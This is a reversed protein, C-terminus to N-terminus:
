SGNRWLESTEAGDAARLALIAANAAVAVAIAVVLLSLDVASLGSAGRFPPITLL